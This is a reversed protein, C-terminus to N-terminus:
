LNQGDDDESAPIWRLSDGAARLQDNRQKAEAESMDQYAQVEETATDYLEYMMPLKEMMKILAGNKADRALHQDFMVGCLWKWKHCFIDCDLWYLIAFLM